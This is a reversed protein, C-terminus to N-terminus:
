RLPLIYSQSIHDRASNARKHTLTGVEKASALDDLTVLNLFEPRQFIYIELDLLAFNKADNPWIPGTFRCKQFNEAPYGLRSLAFHVDLPTHCAEKFDTGPKMRFERTTLVDIEVTRDETHRAGLD